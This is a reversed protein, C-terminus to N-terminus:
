VHARWWPAVISPPGGRRPPKDACVRYAIIAIYATAPRATVTQRAPRSPTHPVAHVHLADNIM